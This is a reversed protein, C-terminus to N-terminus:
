EPILGLKQFGKLIEPLRSDPIKYRYASGKDTQMLNREVLGMRALAKLTARKERKRNKADWFADLQNGYVFRQISLKLLIKEMPSLYDPYLTLDKTQVKTPKHKARQKKTLKRTSPM